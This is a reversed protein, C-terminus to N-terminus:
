AKLPKFASQKAVSDTFHLVEVEAGSKSLLTLWMRQQQSLRDNSSKVEVLKASTANFLALDPFGSCYHRFDQSLRLCVEALVGPGLGVAIQILNPISWQNVQWWSVFLSAKGFHTGIIHALHQGLNKCEKLRQLHLHIMEARSAFFSPSKYDLPALQCVTQFVEPVPAFIVDWMLLGFLVVFISNESHFGAWGQARYHELAYDEVRMQQDGLVFVLRGNEYFSVASAQVYKFHASTFGYNEWAALTNMHSEFEILGLKAARAELEARKGTKVTADTLAHMLLQPVLDKRQMHKNVVIILGIWCHGRKYWFLEQLLIQCYVFGRSLKPLHEAAYYLVRFWNSKGILDDKWDPYPPSNTESILRSVLTLVTEDKSLGLKELALDTLETAIHTKLDNAIGIGSLNKIVGLVQHAFDFDDLQPRSQFVCFGDTSVVGTFQGATVQSDPDSCAFFTVLRHLKLCVQQPKLKLRVYMPFDKPIVVDRWADGTLGGRLRQLTAFRSMFAFDNRTKRLCTLLEFVSDVLRNKHRDVDLVQSIYQSLRQLELRELAIHFLPNLRQRMISPINANHDNGTIVVVIGHLHEHLSQLREVTLSSLLEYVSCDTGEDLGEQITEMLGHGILENVNAENDNGYDLKDVQYWITKRYFLATYLQKAEAGLTTYAQVAGLEDSTLLGELYNAAEVLAREFQAAKLTCCCAKSVPTALNQHWYICDEKPPEPETPVDTKIEFGFYRTIKSNQTRKRKNSKMELIAQFRWNRM